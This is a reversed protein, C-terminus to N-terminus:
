GCSLSPKQLVVSQGQLRLRQRQQTSSACPTVPPSRPGKCLRVRSPRAGLSVGRCRVGSLAGRRPPPHERCDWAPPAASTSAGPQLRRQHRATRGGAGSRPCADAGVAPHTPSPARFRSWAAHAKASRKSFGSVQLDGGQSDSRGGPIATLVALKGDGKQTQPPLRCTRFLDNEAKTPKHILTGKNQDESVANVMSRM